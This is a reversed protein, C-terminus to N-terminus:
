KVPRRYAFSISRRPTASRLRSVSHLYGDHCNFLLLRNARPPMPGFIIERPSARAFDLAGGAAPDSDASLYLVAQLRRGQNDDSHYDYFDGKELRHFEFAFPELGSERFEKMLFDLIDSRSFASYLIRHLTSDPPVQAGYSRYVSTEKRRFEVRDQATLFSKLQASSLFRDIVCARFREEEVIWRARSSLSRFIM